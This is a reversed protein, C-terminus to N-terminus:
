EEKYYSLYKPPSIKKSAVEYEVDSFLEWNCPLDVKLSILEEDEDFLEGFWSSLAINMSEEDSFLFVFPETECLKSNEGIQPM